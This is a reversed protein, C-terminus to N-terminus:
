HEELEAVSGGFSVFVASFFAALAARRSFCRCLFAFSECRSSDGAVSDTEEDSVPEETAGGFAFLGGTTASAASSAAEM